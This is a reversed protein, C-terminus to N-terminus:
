ALKHREGKLVALVNPRLQLKELDQHLWLEGTSRAGGMGGPIDSGVPHQEFYIRKSNPDNGPWSIEDLDTLLRELTELSCQIERAPIVAYIQGGDDGELIAVADHDTRAEELSRYSKYPVGKADAVMRRFSEHNRLHSEVLPGGEWGDDPTGGPGPGFEATPRWDGAAVWVRLLVKKESDLSFTSEKRHRQLVYELKIPRGRSYQAVDGERTWESVNGDDHRIRVMPWDGMSGWRPTEIIGKVRHIPIEGREVARWWEDSGFLYPEPELGFDKTTRTVEQIRAVYDVADRLDYVKIWESRSDSGQM